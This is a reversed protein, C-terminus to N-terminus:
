KRGGEIKEIYNVLIKALQARTATGQPSLVTKDTGSILVNYVGWYMPAKGWSSIAASDTFVADYVATFVAEMGSQGGSYGFLIKMAAERTLSADPSFTTATTGNVYGKSYAWAIATKFEDILGGIDTFPTEAAVPESGAMRWVVTVFQARTVPADPRFTGDEYGKFLGLEAAKNIYALGWHGATDSFAPTEAAMVPVSLLAVILILALLKKM